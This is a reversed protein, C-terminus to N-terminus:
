VCSQLISINPDFRTSCSPLWLSWAKSAMMAYERGNFIVHGIMLEVERQTKDNIDDRQRASGRVTLRNSGKQNVSV